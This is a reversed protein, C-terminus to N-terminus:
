SGLCDWNRCEANGKMDEYYTFMSVEFKIQLNVM